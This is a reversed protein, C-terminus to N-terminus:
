KLALVDQVTDFLAKGIITPYKHQYLKGKIYFEGYYFPNSLMNRICDKSIDGNKTKLGLKRAEQTLTSISYKGTAYEKFLDTIISAKSYDLVIDPRNSSDRSNLYGIPALRPYIGNCYNFHLSRSIHDKLSNRYINIALISMDWLSLDDTSSYKNIVLAEKIFHIKTDKKTCLENLCVSQTYGTQLKSVCYAVIAIKSKKVKVYKIMEDFTKSYKNTTGECKFIKVIDLKHTDCYSTLCELQTKRSNKNGRIFLVAPQIQSFNDDKM